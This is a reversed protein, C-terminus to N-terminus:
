SLFPCIPSLLQEDEQGGSGRVDLWSALVLMPRHIFKFSYHQLNPNYKSLGFSYHDFWYLLSGFYKKTNTKTVLMFFAWCLSSGENKLIWHRKNSGKQRTCGHRTWLAGLPKRNQIQPRWVQALILRLFDRQHISRRLWLVCEVKVSHCVSHCILQDESAFDISQGKLERQAAGWLVEQFLPLGHRGTTVLQLRENFPAAIFRHDFVWVTLSPNELVFCHCIALLSFPFQLWLVDSLDLGLFEAECESRTLQTAKESTIRNVM